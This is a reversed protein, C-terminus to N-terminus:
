LHAAAPSSYNWLTALIAVELTSIDALVAPEAPTPLPTPAPFNLLNSTFNDDLM